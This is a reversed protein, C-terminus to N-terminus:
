VVTVVHGTVVVCPVSIMVVKVVLVWVTVLQMPPHWGVVDAGAVEVGYWHL